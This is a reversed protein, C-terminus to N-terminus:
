QTVLTTGQRVAHELRHHTHAGLEVDVGPVNKLLQMDQPFGLHSHLVVLDVKMQERLLRVEEALEERGNTFYAGESFRPPMTKDVINSAIGVIGVRLGAVEMVRHRPFINQRTGKDYV